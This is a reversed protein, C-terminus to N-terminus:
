YNSDTTSNIHEIKDLAGDPKNKMKGQHLVFCFILAADRQRGLVAAETPCFLVSDDM